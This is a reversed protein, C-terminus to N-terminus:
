ELTLLSCKLTKNWNMIIIFVEFLVIHCVFVQVHGTALNLLACLRSLEKPKMQQTANTSTQGKATWQHNSNLPHKFALVSLTNDPTWEYVNCLAAKVKLWKFIYLVRFHYCPLFIKSKRFGQIWSLSIFCLHEAKDQGTCHDCAACQTKARNQENGWQEATNVTSKLLQGPAPTWFVGVYMCTFATWSVLPRIMRPTQSTVQGQKFWAPNKNHPKQAKIKDRGIPVPSLPRHFIMVTAKFSTDCFLFINASTNSWFFVFYHNFTATTKRYGGVESLSHFSLPPNPRGHWLRM